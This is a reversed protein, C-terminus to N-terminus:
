RWSRTGVRVRAEMKKREGPKMLCCLYCALVLSSTTSHNHQSIAIQHHSTFFRTSTAALTGGEGHRIRGGRSWKTRGRVSGGRSRSRRRMRRRTRRGGRDGSERMSRRRMRGSRGVRVDGNASCSSGGFRDISSSITTSTSTLASVTRGIKM